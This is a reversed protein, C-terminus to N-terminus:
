HGGKYTHILDAWLRSRQERSSLGYGLVDLSRTIAGMVVSPKFGKRLLINAVKSVMMYPLGEKGRQERSFAEAQLEELAIEDATEYGSGFESSAHYIEHLRLGTSAHYPLYMTTEEADVETWGGVGEGFREELEKRSMREIRM